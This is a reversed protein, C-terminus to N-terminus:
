HIIKRIIWFVGSVIASIILCSVIPFHVVMRDSKYSIDGPLSGFGFKALWPYALGTLVM